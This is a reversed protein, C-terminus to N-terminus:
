SYLIFSQGFLFSFLCLKDFLKNQLFLIESTVSEDRAENVSQVVKQYAKKLQVNESFKSVNVTLSCDNTASSVQQCTGSELVDHLCM